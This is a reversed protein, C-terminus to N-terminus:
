VTKQEKINFQSNYMTAYIGNQSLLETHTGSEAVIGNSMVLITTANKITTLRHAIIFATRGELMHAMATQIRAETRTDVSSTAEDLILIKPNTLLARAITILQKEGQSINSSEENIQTDYGHELTTIFHHVHAEKAVQEIEERTATPKGYAINEAISGSFLWTDQLVMGFLARLEKRNYERINKDNVLIEGSDVEYFRMLLNVLTTKGAGTQGVIAITDGINATFNLDRILEKEPDYSFNVDKFQVKM